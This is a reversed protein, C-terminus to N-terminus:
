LHRSKFPPWRFPFSIKVSQTYISYETYMAFYYYKLLSSNPYSKNRLIFVRFHFYSYSEQMLIYTHLLAVLLRESQTYLVSLRNFCLYLTPTYQLLFSFDLNLTHTLAHYQIHVSLRASALCCLPFRTYTSLLYKSQMSCCM